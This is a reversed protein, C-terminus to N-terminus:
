KDIVRYSSRYASGAGFNGTALVPLFVLPLYDPQSDIELKAADMLIKESM